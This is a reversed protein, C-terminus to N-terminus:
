DYEINVAPVARDMERNSQASMLCHQSVVTTENSCYFTDIVHVLAATVPIHAFFHIANIVSVYVDASLVSCQPVGDVGCEQHMIPPQIRLIRVIDSKLVKKEGASLGDNLKM